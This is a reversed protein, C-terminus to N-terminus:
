PRLYARYNRRRNRDSRPPRTQYQADSNPEFAIERAQFPQLAPGRARRDGPSDGAAFDKRDGRNGNGGAPRLSSACESLRATSCSASTFRANSSRRWRWMSAAARNKGDPGTQHTVLKRGLLSQAAEHVEHYTRCLKIGGAKGRAGSHIQAKVAWHWGGLESAVFSAQEASYAVAGPQIPVGFGSLLDKAQYEHIDM